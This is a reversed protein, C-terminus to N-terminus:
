ALAHSSVIFDHPRPWFLLRHVGLMFDFCPDIRVKDDEIQKIVDNINRKGYKGHMGLTGDVSFRKTLPAPKPNDELDPHVDAHGHGHGHASSKKPTLKKIIEVLPMSGFVVMMIVWTVTWQATQAGKTRDDMDKQVYNQGLVLVIIAFCLLVCGLFLEFFDLFGAIPSKAHPAPHGASHASPGHTGPKSESEVTANDVVGM